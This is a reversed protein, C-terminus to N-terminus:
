TKHRHYYRRKAARQRELEDAPNAVKARQQTPLGLDEEPHNKIRQLYALYLKRDSKNIDATTLGGSNWDGKKNTTGYHMRIWDVASVERGTTRDGWQPVTPMPRTNELFEKALWPANEAISSAIKRAVEPTTNEAAYKLLARSEKENVPREPSPALDDKGTVGHDDYVKRLDSPFKEKLFDRRDVLELRLLRGNEPAGANKPNPKKLGIM